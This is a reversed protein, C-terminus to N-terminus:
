KSDNVKLELNVNYIDARAHTSDEISTQMYAVVEKNHQLVTTAYLLGHVLERPELNDAMSKGLMLEFITMNKAAM